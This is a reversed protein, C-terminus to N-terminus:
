ALVIIKLFSFFVLSVHIFNNWSMLFCLDFAVFLYMAPQGRVQWRCNSWAVAMISHSSYTPPFSSVHDCCDICIGSFLGFVCTFEGDLDSFERELLTQTVHTGSRRGYVIDAEGSTSADGFGVGRTFDPMLDPMSNTLSATPSRVDDNAEDELYQLYTISRPNILGSTTAALGKCLDHRDHPRCFVGGGNTILIVLFSCFLAPLCPWSLNKEFEDIWNLLIPEIVICWLPPM